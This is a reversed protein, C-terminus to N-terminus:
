SRVGLKPFLWLRLALYTVLAVFITLVEKLIEM